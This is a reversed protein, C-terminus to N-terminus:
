AWKPFSWFQAGKVSGAEVEYRAQAMFNRFRRAHFVSLNPNSYPKAPQGMLRAATGSLFAQYYQSWLDGPIWNEVDTGADLSPTLTMTVFFPGAAVDDATPVSSFGVEGLEYVVGSTDLTPHVIGQVEIVEAGAPKITYLDDGAVLAIPATERWADSVRCFEDITNWLEIDIVQDLVGPCMLRINDYLRTVLTM